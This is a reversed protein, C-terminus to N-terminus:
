VPPSGTAKRPDVLCLQAGHVDQVQCCPESLPTESAKSSSSNQSSQKSVQPLMRFHNAQLEVCNKVPHLGCSKNRPSKGVEWGWTNTWGLLFSTLLHKRHSTAAHLGRAIQTLKNCKEPHKPPFRAKLYPCPELKM